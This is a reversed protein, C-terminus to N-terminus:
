GLRIVRIVRVRIVRIVWEYTVQAWATLVRRTSWFPGHARTHTLTHTHSHTLAHTHTHAHTLM